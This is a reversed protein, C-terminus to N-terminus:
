PIDPCMQVSKLNHALVGEVYYNHGVGSAHGFGAQTVGDVSLNYTRVVERYPRIKRIGVSAGNQDFFSVKIGLAFL